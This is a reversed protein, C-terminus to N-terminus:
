RLIFLLYAPQRFWRRIEFNEHREKPPLRTRMLGLALLLLSVNMAASVRVANHFGLSGNILHNLMIPQIVSGLACLFTHNTSSSMSFPPHLAGLASGSSIIGVALPRKRKFYHGAIALGLNLSHVCYQNQLLLSM